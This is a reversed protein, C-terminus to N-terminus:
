GKLLGERILDDYVGKVLDALDSGKRLLRKSNFARGKAGAIVPVVVWETESVRRIRVGKLM